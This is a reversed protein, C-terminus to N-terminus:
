NNLLQNFRSQIRTRAAACLDKALGRARHDASVFTDRLTPELELSFEVGCSQFRIGRHEVPMDLRDFIADIVQHSQTLLLILRVTKLAENGERKIRRIRLQGM